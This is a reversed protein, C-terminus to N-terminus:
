LFGDFNTIQFWCFVGFAATSELLAAKLLAAELLTSELLAPELLALLTLV